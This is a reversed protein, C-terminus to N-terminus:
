HSGYQERYADAKAHPVVCDGGCLKCIDGVRGTQGSGNCRPCEEEDLDDPNYEAHKARSVTCDGNCYPCASNGWGIQGKGECRPCDIEDLKDPDFAQRREDSVFGDGKCYICLNGTWGTQGKGSCRPCEVEDIKEPDYEAAEERPIFCSGKCVSCLSGGWGVQGKGDCRPCPVENMEDPDYEDSEAQTVFGDGKCYSCLDGVWGTQCRGGCRPCPVEDIENEDYEKATETPVYCSGGCYSCLSGAIGRQGTGGCHPCDVEGLDIVVKNSAAIVESAASRLQYESKAEVGQSALAAVKPAIKVLAADIPSHEHDKKTDAAAARSAEGVQVMLAKLETASVEKLDAEGDKKLGEELKKIQQILSRMAKTANVEMLLMRRRSDRKVVKAADIVERRINGSAKHGYDYATHHNPCLYLLNDPSNCAGDAAAHIHAVEGHNGDGCIACGFHCEAKVDNAITERMPPRKQGAPIPWKENLYRQYSFLESEDVLLQGDVEKSPLTRTEGHKPCNETLYKLLEVSWGIKSAAEVLTLLPM